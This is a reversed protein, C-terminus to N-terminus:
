PVFINYILKEFNTEINTYLKSLCIINKYPIEICIILITVLVRSM